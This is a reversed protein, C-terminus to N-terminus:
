VRKSRTEEHLLVDSLSLDFREKNEPVKDIFFFRDRMEACHQEETALAARIVKRIDRLERKKVEPFERAATLLEEKRADL